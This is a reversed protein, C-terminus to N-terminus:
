EGVLQVADIQKWGKGLRTDLTIRIRQVPYATADCSV